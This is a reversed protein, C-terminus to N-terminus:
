TLRISYTRTPRLDLLLRISGPCFGELSQFLRIEATEPRENTSRLRGINSGREVEALLGISGEYLCAVRFILNIVVLIQFNQIQIHYGSPSPLTGLFASYLLRWLNGNEGEGILFAILDCNANRIATVRGLLTGAVKPIVRSLTKTVTLNCIAEIGSFTVRGTFTQTQEGVLSLSRNAAATGTGVSLLLVSVLAALMIRLSRM